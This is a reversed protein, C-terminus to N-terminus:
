FVIESNIKDAGFLKISNNFILYSVVGYAFHVLLVDKIFLLLFGKELEM